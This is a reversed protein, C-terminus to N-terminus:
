GEGVQTIPYFFFSGPVGSEDSRLPGTDLHCAKMSRHTEYWRGM